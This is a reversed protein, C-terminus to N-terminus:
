PAPATAAPALAGLTAIDCTRADTSGLTVICDPEIVPRYDFASIGGIRLVGDSNGMLRMQAVSDTVSYFVRAPPM